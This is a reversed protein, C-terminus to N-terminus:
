ALAIKLRMKLYLTLSQPVDPQVEDGHVLWNGREFIHTKRAMDAPNEQLIPTADVNASKILSWFQQNASTTDTSRETWKKTLHFWDFGIGNDNFSTM